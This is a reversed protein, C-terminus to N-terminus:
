NVGKRALARTADLGLGSNVGTAIAVRDIQNPIDDFTWKGM